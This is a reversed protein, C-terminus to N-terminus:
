PIKPAFPLKYQGYIALLVVKKPLFYNSYAVLKM